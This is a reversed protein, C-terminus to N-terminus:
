TYISMSSNTFFPLKVLFLKVSCPMKVFTMFVKCACRLKPSSKKSTLIMSSCSKFIQMSKSKVAVAIGSSIITSTYQFNCSNKVGCM